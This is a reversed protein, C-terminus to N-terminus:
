TSASGAAALVSSLAREADLPGRGTRTPRACTRARWWRTPGRADTGGGIDRRVGDHQRRVAQLLRLFAGLFWARTPANRLSEVMARADRQTDTFSSPCGTSGACAVVSLAPDTAEVALGLQELERLASSSRQHPVHPIVISRWPTLRVEASEKETVSSRRWTRWPVSISAPSAGWCPCPGWWSTHGPGRQRLQGIPRRSASTPRTSTAARWRSFSSTSRVGGGPTLVKEGGLLTVLGSMRGGAAPHDAMLAVAGEVLSGADEPRVM